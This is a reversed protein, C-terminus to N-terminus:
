LNENLDGLLFFLLEILASVSMMKKLIEPDINERIGWRTIADSDLKLSNFDKLLTEIKEKTSKM